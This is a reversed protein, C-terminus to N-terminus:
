NFWFFYTGFFEERFRIEQCNWASIWLIGQDNAMSTYVYLCNVNADGMFNCKVVANKFHRLMSDVLNSTEMYLFVVYLRTQIIYPYLIIKWRINICVNIPLCACPKWRSIGIIIYLYVWKCLILFNSVIYITYFYM